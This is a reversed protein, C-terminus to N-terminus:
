LQCRKSVSTSLGRPTQTGGLHVVYCQASRPNSSSSSTSTVGTENEIVNPEPISCIEDIAAKLSDSSPNSSLLKSTTDKAFKLLKSESCYKAEVDDLLIDIDNDM